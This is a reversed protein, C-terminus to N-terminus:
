NNFILFPNLSMSSSKYQHEPKLYKSAFSQHTAMLRTRIRHPGETPDLQWFRPLAREDCWIAGEHTLRDVLARWRVTATVEASKAQRIESIQAKREVNQADVAIRTMLM